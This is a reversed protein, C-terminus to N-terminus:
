ELSYVVGETTSTTSRQDTPGFLFCMAEADASGEVLRLGMMLMNDQLGAGRSVM